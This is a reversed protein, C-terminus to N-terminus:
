ERVIRISSVTIDGNITQAPKGFRYELLIKAAAADPKESYVVLERGVRKQVEVGNVLEYLKGIVVSFDVNAELLLKIDDSTKNKTGAKRGGTKIGKM